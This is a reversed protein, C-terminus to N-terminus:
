AGPGSEPRIFTSAQGERDPILELATPDGVWTDPRLPVSQDLQSGIRYVAVEPCISQMLAAFRRRQARSAFILLNWGFDGTIKVVDFGLWRASMTLRRVESLLVTRQRVSLVPMLRIRRTPMTLTKQDISIGSLERRFLWLASIGGIGAAIGVGPSSIRTVAFAYFGFLAIALEIAILKWNRFGQKTAGFARPENTPLADNAAQWGM